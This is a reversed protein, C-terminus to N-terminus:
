LKIILKFTFKEKNWDYGVLLYRDGKYGLKYEHISKELYEFKEEIDLSSGQFIMLRHSANSMLLKEFDYKIDPIKPAWECEMILPVETLRDDTNYDYWILDYLWEPEYFGSYGSTCVIYNNEGGLKGLLGKIEHTWQKDSLEERNAKVPFPSLVNIIGREIADFKNM